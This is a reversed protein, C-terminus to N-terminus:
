RKVVVVNNRMSRTQVIIPPEPQPNLKSIEEGMYKSGAESKIHADTAVVLADVSSALTKTANARLEEVGKVGEIDEIVATTAIIIEAHKYFIPDGMEPYFAILKGNKDYVYAGAGTVITTTNSETLVLRFNPPFVM